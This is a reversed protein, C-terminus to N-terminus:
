VGKSQPITPLHAISAVATPQVVIDLVTCFTSPSLRLFHALFKRFDIHTTHQQLKTIYKWIEARGSVWVCVGQGTRVATCGLM